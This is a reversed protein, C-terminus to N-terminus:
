NFKERFCSYFMTDIRQASRDPHTFTIVDYNLLYYEDDLQYVSGTDGHKLVQLADNFYNPWHSSKYASIIVTGSCIAKATHANSNTKSHLFSFPRNNLRGKTKLM